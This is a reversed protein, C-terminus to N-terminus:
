AALKKWSMKKRKEGPNFTLKTELTPMEDFLFYCLSIVSVPKYIRTYLLIFDGGLQVKQPSCSMLISRLSLSPFWTRWKRQGVVVKSVMFVTTPSTAPSTARSTHMFPFFTSYICMERERRSEGRFDHPVLSFLQKELTSFQTHTFPTFNWLTERYLSM